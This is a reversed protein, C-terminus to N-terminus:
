IFNSDFFLIFEFTKLAITGGKDGSVEEQLVSNYWTTELHRGASFQVVHSLSNVLHNQSM